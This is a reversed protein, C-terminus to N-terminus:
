RLRDEVSREINCWNYAGFCHNISGSGLRDTTVTGEICSGAADDDPYIIRYRGPFVLNAASDPLDWTATLIRESDPQIMM